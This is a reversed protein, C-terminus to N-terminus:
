ICELIVINYLFTKTCDRSAGLDFPRRAEKYLFTRDFCAKHCKHIILVCPIEELVIFLTVWVLMGDFLLLSITENNELSSSRVACGNLFVCARLSYRGVTIVSVSLIREKCSENVLSM